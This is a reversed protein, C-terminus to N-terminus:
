AIRKLLGKKFFKGAWVKSLTCRFIALKLKFHTFHSPHMPQTQSQLCSGIQSCNEVMYKSAYKFIVYFLQM